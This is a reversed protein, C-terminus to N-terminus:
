RAAVRIRRWPRDAAGQVVGGADIVAGLSRLAEGSLRETV